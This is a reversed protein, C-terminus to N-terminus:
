FHSILTEPAALINKRLDNVLYLKNQSWDLASVGTGAVTGPLAPNFLSIHTLIFFKPEFQYLVISIRKKISCSM